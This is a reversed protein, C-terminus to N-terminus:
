PLDAEEEPTLVFVPQDHGLLQLLIRAFEDQQEDPLSAVTAVAEELLRTMVSYCPRAAATLGHLGSHIIQTEAELSRFHHTRGIACGARAATALAEFHGCELTRAGGDVLGSDPL